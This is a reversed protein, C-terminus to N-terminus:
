DPCGIAPTRGLEKRLWARATLWDRQVTKTSVKLAVATEDLTLGGFVRHEVVAAVRRDLQQLRDLVDDLALIEDFEADNMLATLDDDLPEPVVGAGRKARKRRRAHDVLIRRMACAAIGLFAERDAAQIQRQQVLRLYVEHVVTTASLAGASERRVQRRAVQRLQEYVHPLIHDLADHDGNNWRTLWETVPGTTGSGM